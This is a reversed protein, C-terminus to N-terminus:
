GDGCHAANAGAHPGLEVHQQMLCVHQYRSMRRMRSATHDKRRWRKAPRGLTGSPSHGFLPLCYRTLAKISDYLVMPM